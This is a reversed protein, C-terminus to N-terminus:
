CDTLLRVLLAARNPIDEVVIHEHEAHAGAGDIGLGDLTPIGLAATFNGDSAGGTAGEGLEFNLEAAIRRAVQFLAIVEPSRELPPRNLGGSLEITTQELIPRLQGIQKMVAEGHSMTSFRVEFEANAEAAVINPSRGGVIRGVNVTTGTTLDNLRHLALIQHALEAIASVGLNPDIGAHAAVGRVTLRYTAVGKRATKAVGGPLPPEFVLVSGCNSAESEILDRSTRSGSEEDCSLFIKVPRAVQLQLVKIAAIAEIMLVLGSKM